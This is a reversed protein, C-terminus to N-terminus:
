NIQTTGATCAPVGGSVTAPIPATAGDINNQECIIGLYNGTITQGVASSYDRLDNNFTNIVTATHVAGESDPTGSIAYIYYNGTFQIPLNSMTTFTGYEFRYGQQIRNINGLTIKAESQRSKEVQKFLTPIALTSLIGIIIVVVLLEILTFGSHKKKRSTCLLKLIHKHQFM